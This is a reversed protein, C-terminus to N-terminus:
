YHRIYLSTKIASSFSWTPTGVPQPPSNLRQSASRHNAWGPLSTFPIALALPFFFASSSSKGTDNLDGTQSWKPKGNFYLFSFSSHVLCFCHTLMTKYGDTICRAVHCVKVHMQFPVMWSYSDGSRPFFRATCVSSGADNWWGRGLLESRAFAIVLDM